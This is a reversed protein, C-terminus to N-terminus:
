CSVSLQCVQMHVILHRKWWRKVLYNLGRFTLVAFFLWGKLQFSCWLFCKWGTGAEWVCMCMHIIGVYTCMHVHLREVNDKNQGWSWSRASLRGPSATVRSGRQPTMQTCAAKPRESALVRHDQCALSWTFAKLYAGVLYHSLISIFAQKVWWLVLISAYILNVLWMFLLFNTLHYILLSPNFAWTQKSLLHPCPRFFVEM